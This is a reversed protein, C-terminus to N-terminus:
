DRFVALQVLPLRLLVLPLHTSFEEERVVLQCTKLNKSSPTVMIDM